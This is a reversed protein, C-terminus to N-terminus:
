CWEGCMRSLVEALKNMMKKYGPKIGFQYAVTGITAYHIVKYGFKWFTFHWAATNYAM